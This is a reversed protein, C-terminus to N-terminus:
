QCTVAMSGNRGYRRNVKFSPLTPTVHVQAQGNPLIQGSWEIEDGVNFAPWGSCDAPAEDWGSITVKARSPLPKVQDTQWRVAMTFSVKLDIDMGSFNGDKNCVYDRVEIEHDGLETGGYNYEWPNSDELKLSVQENPFKRTYTHKYVTKGSQLVNMLYRDTLEVGFYRRKYTKDFIMMHSSVTSTGGTLDKIIQVVSLVNGFDVIGGVVGVGEVRIGGVSLHAVV